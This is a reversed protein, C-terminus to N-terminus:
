RHHMAGRLQSLLIKRFFDEQFGGGVVSDLETETLEVVNSNANLKTSM